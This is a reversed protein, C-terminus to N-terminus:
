DGKEGIMFTKSQLKTLDEAVLQGKFTRIERQASDTTISAGTARQVPNVGADYYFFSTNKLISNGSPKITYNFSYDAIEDGKEGIMFTKSQLKTLDEAVLQGKFTRIERQASDTTISAGTARQVPNVGADYYFFSTNKLISNGSPKITYNFSYDAI